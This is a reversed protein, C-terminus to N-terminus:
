MCSCFLSNWNVWHLLSVLHPYCKKNLFNIDILRYVSCELMFADNVAVLGINEQFLLDYLLWSQTSVLWWSVSSLRWSSLCSVLKQIWYKWCWWHLQEGTGLQTLWVVTFFCNTWFTRWRNIGVHNGEDPRRSIWSTTLLLSHHKSSFHGVCVLIFTM